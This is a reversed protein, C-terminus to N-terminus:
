DEKEAYQGQGKANIGRVTGGNDLAGTFVGFGCDKVVIRYM